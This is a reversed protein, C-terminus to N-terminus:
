PAQSSTQSPPPTPSSPPRRVPHTFAREVDWGLKLRSTVTKRHIGFHDSLAQLCQTIGRVTFVRNNRRHQNQQERTAWRVNLPWGNRRCEACAGCSYHGSENNPWRDLELEKPCKGLVTLFQPFERLGGCVKIGRGGYNFFYTANQNTCRQIMNTWAAYESTHVGGHRSSRAITLEIQLCGCSRTNGYILSANRAVFRQGCDCQVLSFHVLAGNPQRKTPEDSLM